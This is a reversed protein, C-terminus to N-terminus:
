EQSKQYRNFVLLSNFLSFFVVGKHRCLVSETFCFMIFLIMLAIFLYDKKRYAIALPYWLCIFFVVLGVIGISLLFQLYQNHANYETFSVTGLKENGSYLNNKVYKRRLNDQVDGTGLGFVWAQNENLIEISFKYIAFRISAGTFVTEPAYEKQNIFDLKSNVIENFRSKTYPLNFLVFLAFANVVIAFTIAIIINKKRAIWIILFINIILCISVIITKSSLMFIFILTFLMLLSYLVKHICRLASAGKFLFFAIICFSFGLYFSFYVAHFGIISGLKHYYFYDKTDSTYYKYLAYSFCILMALTGAFVFCKLLKEIQNKNLHNSTGIVLPLILISLKKELDFMGENINETYSCGLIHLLYFGMFLLVGRNNILRKCKIKFDGEILWNFVLLLIFISNWKIFFPLTAIICFLTFYFINTHIQSRNFM